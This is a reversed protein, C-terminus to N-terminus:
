LSLIRTKSLNWPQFSWVPLSKNLLGRLFGRITKGPKSFSQKLRKKNSSTLRKQYIAQTM